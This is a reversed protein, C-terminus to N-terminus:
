KHKNELLRIYTNMHMFNVTFYFNPHTQLPCFADQSISRQLHDRAFVACLKGNARQKADVVLAGNCSNTYNLSYFKHVNPHSYTRINTPCNPKQLRQGGDPSVKPRVYLYGGKENRNYMPATVARIM